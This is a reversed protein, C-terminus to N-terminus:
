RSITLILTDINKFYLYLPNAGMIVRYNTFIIIINLVIPFMLSKIKFNNM